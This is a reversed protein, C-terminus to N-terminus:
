RSVLQLWTKKGPKVKVRITSAKEKVPSPKRSARSGCFRLHYILLVEKKYKLTTLKTIVAQALEGGTDGVKILAAGVGVVVGISLGVSDAETEIVVEGVVWGAGVIVGARAVDVGEGVELGDEMESGAAVTVSLEGVAM